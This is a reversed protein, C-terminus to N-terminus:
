WCEKDKGVFIIISDSTSNVLEMKVLNQKSAHLVGKTPSVVRLDTKVRPSISKIGDITTSDDTGIYVLFHLNTTMSRDVIM